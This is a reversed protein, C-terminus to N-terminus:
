QLEMQTDVIQYVFENARRFNENQQEILLYKTVFENMELDTVFKSHKLCKNAFAREVARTYAQQSITTPLVPPSPAISPPAVSTPSARSLAPERPSSDPRSAPMSRSSPSEIVKLGPEPSSVETHPVSPMDPVALQPGEHDSPAAADTDAEAGGANVTSTLSMEMEKAPLLVESVLSTTVGSQSQHSAESPAPPQADETHHERIGQEVDEETFSVGTTAGKEPVNYMSGDMIMGMSSRSMQTVSSGVSSQSIRMSRNSELKRVLQAQGGIIQGNFSKTSHTALVDPDAMIVNVRSGSRPTSETVRLHSPGINPNLVSPAPSPGTQSSDGTDQASQQGGTVM